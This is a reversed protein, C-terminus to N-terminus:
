IGKYYKRLARKKALGLGISLGGWCLFRSSSTKIGGGWGNGATRAAELLLCSKRGASTGLAVEKSETQLPIEV